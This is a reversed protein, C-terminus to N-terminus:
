KDFEGLSHMAWSLRAFDELSLAQARSDVPLDAKTLCQAIESSNLLPQLSNTLMKRRQLFARKVLSVFEKESPVSIRQETTKLRFEALAGDVKPVPTYKFRDIKFLYKPECYYQVLVNMARWDSSGPQNNILREAVEHQLMLFLCSFVEGGLPLSKLLFEKTINYPLNAVVKPIQKSQKTRKRLDDALEVMNEHLIDGHIIRIQEDQFICIGSTIIEIYRYKDHVLFIVLISDDSCM